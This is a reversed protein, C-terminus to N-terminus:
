NKAKVVVFTQDDRPLAKGMFQTIQENLKKAIEKARLDKNKAIVNSVSQLSFQSGESNLAEIIGDTYLIAIDNETFPLKKVTYISKVSVGIPDTAQTIMELKNTKNRWILLAQNGASAYEIAKENHLYTLFSVGAYHDISIKGTIGKNLADLLTLTSQKTSTLLYIIARIMIMVIVAQISKGAVDFVIIFSRDEQSRIVDYYDSCVGKAQKAYLGFSLSPTDVLKKPLLINQIKSAMAMENEIATLEAEEQLADILNLAETVYNALMEAIEVDTETFPVNGSDRSLGIIGTVNGKSIMPLILYSGPLLFSEPGNNYVREDQTGDQILIPVGSTAAEGFISNELKFEAYKFNTRVREIKHPVDDPLKYPPPFNGELAKVALFDEFDDAILIVGGDAYMQEIMVQNIFALTASVDKRDRLMEAAHAIFKNGVPFLAKARLYTEDAANNGELMEQAERTAQEEREFERVQIQKFRFTFIFLIFVSAAVGLVLFLINHSFFAILAAFINLVSCVLIGVPLVSVTKRIKKNFLISVIYFTFLLYIM